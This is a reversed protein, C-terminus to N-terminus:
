SPHGDPFMALEIIASRPAPKLSRPRPVPAFSKSPGIARSTPASSTAFAIAYMALGRDPEVVPVTSPTSLPM